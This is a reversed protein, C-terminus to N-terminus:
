LPFQSFFYQIHLPGDNTGLFTLPFYSFFLKIVRNIFECCFVTWGNYKRRQILIQHFGSLYCKDNTGHCRTEFELVKNLYSCENGRM